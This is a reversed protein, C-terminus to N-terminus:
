RLLTTPYYPLLPSSPKLTTPYYPLLTSSSVPRVQLDQMSSSISHLTVGAVHTVQLVVPRM